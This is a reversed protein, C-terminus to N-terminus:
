DAEKENTKGEQGALGVQGTDSACRLCIGRFEVQAKQVIGYAKVEDPAALHDFESYYFDSAEGCALCVFHHHPRTNGDFRVRDQPFGLTGILGLDLLKWLTRYVTDLSITPVRQRVGKYVTEADPHISSEAIERCIELRQHTLKVGADRLGQQFANLRKEIESKDPAM